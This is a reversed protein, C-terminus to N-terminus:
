AGRASVYLLDRARVLCTGPEISELAGLLQEGARTSHNASWYTVHDGESVDVLARAGDPLLRGPGVRLVVGREPKNKEGLEVLTVAGVPEEEPLRRILIWDSLPRLSM